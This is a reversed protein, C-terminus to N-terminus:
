KTSEKAHNVSSEVNVNMEKKVKLERRVEYAYEIITKMVAFVPVGILMGVLGGLNGAAILVLMVTLPHIDLSKGVFRPTFLNSDGQQVLFVLLMALLAKSPSMTLGVIAAPAGGIFPGVYPIYNTVGAFIALLFASPLNLFKYGIYLLLGVIVSAAGKGSIYGSITKNVRHLLEEVYEHYAEPIIAVMLQPFRWGDHLMYFLIVPITVLLVAVTTLRSIVTGVFSGLNDVITNGTNRLWTEITYLHGEVDVNDLWPEESLLQIFNEIENIFAPIGGILQVTQDILIPIGRVVMVVLTGGLLVMVIAISYIRKINLKELLQVMPNLLYFMFGAILLPTFLSALITQLPSLLFDIQSLIFILLSSALLWLTWFMLLHRKSLKM